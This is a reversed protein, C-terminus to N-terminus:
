GHALATASAAEQPAVRIRLERARRLTDQRAKEAEGDRKVVDFLQELTEPTVQLKM